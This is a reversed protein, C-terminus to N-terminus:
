PTGEESGGAEGSDAGRRSEIISDVRAILENMQFPKELRMPDFSREGAPSEVIWLTPITESARDTVALANADAIYVDPPPCDDPSDPDAPWKSLLEVHYGARQLASGILERVFADTEVLALRADTVSDSPIRPAQPPPAKPLWVWFRAGTQAAAPPNGPAKIPTDVDISGGHDTIIGHIVSLGLGLGRGESKTTFFPEFIRERVDESVGPGDDAVELLVGQPDGQEDHAQRGAQKPIPGRQLAVRLEGGGPMADAANVILNIIVQQMQSSDANIWLPDSGQHDFEIRVSAPTLRSVLGLTSRVLEVIDLTQREAIGHRSFTLLSRTVGGAERATSELELLAETAPHDPPLAARARDSAATIATLLNSFDHAVGGALVGLAELKQSQRLREELQKRRHEEALRPRLDRLAITRVVLGSELLTPTVEFEVPVAANAAGVLVTDARFPAVRAGPALEQALDDPALEGAHAKNLVDNASHGVLDDRHVGLLREARPNAELIRARHDLTFIADGSSEVIAAKLRAEDAANRLARLQDRIAGILGWWAAILFIFSIACLLLVAVVQRDVAERERTVRSVVAQGLADLDSQLAERAVTARGGELLVRAEIRRGAAALDIAERDIARLRHASAIARESSETEAQTRVASRVVGLASILDSAAEAFARSAPGGSPQEVALAAAGQMATASRAAEVRSTALVTEAAVLDAFRSRLQLVLAAEVVLLGCALVAGFTALM